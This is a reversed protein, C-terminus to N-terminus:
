PHVSMVRCAFVTSVSGTSEMRGWINSKQQLNLNQQGILQQFQYIM